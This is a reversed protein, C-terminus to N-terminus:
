GTRSCCSRSGAVPFAERRSGSGLRELRNGSDNLKGAALTVEKRVWESHQPGQKFLITIVARARNISDVIWPRIEGGGPVGLRYENVRIGVDALRGIICDVLAEDPAAWSLFIEDV